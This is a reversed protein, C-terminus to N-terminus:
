YLEFSNSDYFLQFSSQSLLVQQIAEAIEPGYEVHSKETSVCFPFPKCCDQFM